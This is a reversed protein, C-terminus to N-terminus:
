YNFKKFHIQLSHVRKLVKLEKEQNRTREKIRKLKRTNEQIKLLNSLCKFGRSSLIVM